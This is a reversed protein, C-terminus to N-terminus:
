CNAPGRVYNPWQDACANNMNEYLAVSNYANLPLDYEGMIQHHEPPMTCAHVIMM